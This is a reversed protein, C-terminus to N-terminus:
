WWVKTDAVKACCVPRPLPNFTLYRKLREWTFSKRGSRRNLWKHLQKKTHGLIAYLGALNGVVGFYNFHGRLKRSLSALLLSTKMHRNEKIYEMINRRAEQLRKRGTRRFLRPKGKTDSDWYFEFSLFCFRNELGPHFRSFRLIRTKDEAVQLNFKELRKPLANYFREADRAYQFACVFDDAYRCIIAEGECHRKVVKEFWEDLVNHLYINALIPSVSGGQPTGEEPYRLSKDEELIGAKLWKNILRLFRRDDIRQALMELLKEHDLHNFFGKIDAEVVHGFRGFQMRVVLDDAAQRAGRRPRYGYSFPHFDQEYIASLIESVATQLLKDELVPIGLPRTKGARKPIHKRKVLKARYGGRKLREILEEINAVHNEKYSGYTVRDVGSAAQKNLGRFCHGLLAEDLCRSLDRFRYDPKTKAKYAIGRLSSLEHREWDEADPVLNSQPSRVETLDKGM